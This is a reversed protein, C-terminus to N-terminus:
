PLGLFAKVPKLTAAPDEEHPVHGLAELVVLQSGAIDRAFWQGHEPPILQDRGGWLILTPVTLAKIRDAERGNERQALRQGLALRNGERLTLEFYRDVLEPTVKSPDGYVSRVSQEIAARPLFFQMTWRVGPLSALVFGIPLRKPVLTYGAADVLILQAVRKPHRAAFGWAVEGGLSNGGLVVRDIKLRDLLALVFASYREISYDGADNPGTLGFGPLDFTIVRRTKSLEAVWPEWIHLSASTGHVLVIPTPDERPGADRLHVGMGQVAVFQSPSLAWRAKLVDVPRDPQWFVVLAGIAVVFSLLSLGALLYALM